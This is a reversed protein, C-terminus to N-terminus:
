RNKWVPTRKDLFARIGNQADEASLNMAITHKAYHYAPDEAQDIQAYFGRKGISLVFRSAEAIQLALKRTETALDQLPVVRNVLGWAMAEEAPIARGTLLMEMAAKRGVARSLAVMPTTCFLGIKVGPTAFRAGEEAVALDCGAVLQCGAATAIGQVQAIVPQPVTHILQMMRTCRDFIQQNDKMGNGVMETLDHGACFHSGEARIIIVKITEEQELGSLADTMESVMKKSMANIKEPRSLTLYAIPGDHILRIEEYTM